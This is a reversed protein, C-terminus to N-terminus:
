GAGTEQTADRTVGRQTPGMAAAADDMTWVPAVQNGAVAQRAAIRTAAIGQGERGCNQDGREVPKRGDDKQGAGAPRHYPQEQGYQRHRWAARSAIGTVRVCPSGPRAPRVTEM